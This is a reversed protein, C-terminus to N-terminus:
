EATEDFIIFVGLFRLLIPSQVEGLVSSEISVLDGCLVLSTAKRDLRKMLM